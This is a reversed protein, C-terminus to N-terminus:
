CRDRPRTRSGDGACKRSERLRESVGGYPHAACTAKQMTHTSASMTTLGEGLQGPRESAARAACRPSPSRRHGFAKAGVGPQLAACSDSLERLYVCMRAAFTPSM